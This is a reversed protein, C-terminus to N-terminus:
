HPYRTAVEELETLQLLQSIRQRIQQKSCKKVKLGFAINDYVTMHTFLAYQQFVFGINRQQAAQENVRKGSFFIDGQDPKDLGAFMRLLSTKGGGSPGLLEIFQGPNVSFSVNHVTHYSELWKNLARIEIHMM